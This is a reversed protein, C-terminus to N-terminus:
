NWIVSSNNNHSSTVFVNALQYCFSKQLSKREKVKAKKNRKKERDLGGGGGM